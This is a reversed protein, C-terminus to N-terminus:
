AEESGSTTKYEEIYRIVDDCVAEAKATDKIKNLCRASYVQAKLLWYILDLDKDGTELAAKIYKAIAQSGQYATLYDGSQFAIKNM